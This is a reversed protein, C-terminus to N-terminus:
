TPLHALENILFSFSIPLFTWHHLFWGWPGIPIAGNVRVRGVNSRGGMEGPM